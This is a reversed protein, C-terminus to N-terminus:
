VAGGIALWNYTLGARLPYDASCNITLNTASTTFGGVGYITAPRVKKEGDIICQTVGNRNTSTDIIMKACIYTLNNGDEDTLPMSSTWVFAASPVVGLSHTVYHYETQDTEFSFTGCDFVRGNITPTESSGGGGSIQSILDAYTDLTGDGVSVGHNEIATKINAKATQLRQIETAISM